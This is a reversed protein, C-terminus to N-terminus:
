RRRPFLWGVGWLICREPLYTLVVAWLVLAWLGDTAAWRHMAWRDPSPALFGLFTSGVDTAHVFVILLVAVFWIPLARPASPPGPRLQLEILSYIIGLPVSLLWWWGSPQPIRAPLQAMALAVNLGEVWGALTYRASILWLAVGLLIGVIGLPWYSQPAGAARKPKAEDKEPAGEDRVPRRRGTRLDREYIQRM